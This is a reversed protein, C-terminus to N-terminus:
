FPKLLTIFTHSHSVGTGPNTANSTSVTVTSGSGLSTLQQQTLTITHTHNLNTSTTYVVGAAPPSSLDILSIVINHTHNEADTSAQIFQKTVTWSHYHNVGTSPNTASTSQVTISQGGNISSLQAQTLTMDHTHNMIQSSTDTWGSSPPSTFASRYVRATHNHNDADSATYSYVYEATVPNINGGSGNVNISDGSNNCGAALILSCAFVSMLLLFLKWKRM